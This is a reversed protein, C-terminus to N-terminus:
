VFMKFFTVLLDKFYPSRIPKPSPMIMQEINQDYPSPNQNPDFQMSSVFLQGELRLPPFVYLAPSTRVM